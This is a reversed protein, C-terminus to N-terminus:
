NQIRRDITMNESKPNFHIFIEPCKQDCKFFFNFITTRNVIGVKETNKIPESDIKDVSTNSNEYSETTESTMELENFDDTTNYFTMRFVENIFENYESVDTFIGIIRNEFNTEYSLVGAILNDCILTSGRNETCLKQQDDTVACLINGTLNGNLTSNCDKTDLLKM